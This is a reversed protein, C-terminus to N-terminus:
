TTYKGSDLERRLQAGLSILAQLKAGIGDCVARMRRRTSDAKVLEERALQVPQAQEAMAEVRAAPPRKAAQDAAMHAGLLAASEVQRLHDKATQYAAEAEAAVMGWYALDAPTRAYENALDDPDITVARAAYEEPTEAVIPPRGLDQYTDALTTADLAHYNPLEPVAHTM